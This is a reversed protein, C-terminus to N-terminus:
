EPWPSLRGAGAIRDVVKALAGRVKQERARGPISVYGHPHPRHEETCEPSKWELHALAIARGGRRDSDESGDAGPRRDVSLQCNAESSSTENRHPVLRADATRCRRCRGSHTSPWCLWRHVGDVRHRENP